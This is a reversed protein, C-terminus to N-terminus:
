GLDTRWGDLAGADARQSRIYAVVLTGSKTRFISPHIHGLIRAAVISVPQDEAKLRSSHALIALLCYGVITAVQVSVFQSLQM